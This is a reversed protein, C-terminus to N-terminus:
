KCTNGKLTGKKEDRAVHAPNVSFASKPLRRKCAGSCQYAQCSRATFGLEKCSGCVVKAGKAKRHDEVQGQKLHKTDSFAGGCAACTLPKADAEAKRKRNNSELTTRQREEACRQCLREGAAKHKKQAESMDAGEQLLSRCEDNSCRVTDAGKKNTTREREEACKRCM